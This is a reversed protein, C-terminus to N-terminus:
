AVEEAAPTGPAGDGAAAVPEDDDVPPPPAVGLAARLDEVIVYLCPIAGLTLVTAFALGFSLSVAMPIIFQAQFSQELILPALGAITTLSTLIIPRLRVEAARVVDDHLSKTRGRQRNIFDVLILSDNVVIGCLAVAGIMSMFSMEMGLVLHGVVIGVGAFPIAAMVILPQVYSRFVAALIVYILIVAILTAQWLSGLSKVTEHAVGRFRMDLDALSAEAAVADTVQSSSTTERDVSALLRIARKRDVRNYVGEGRSVEFRAVERLRVRDGAPTFVHLQELQGPTELLEKSYRVVVDIQGRDVRWTSAKLGQIAARVQESLAQVTLGVARGYPLLELQIELKGPQADTKIDHVGDLKSLYGRLREINAELEEGDGRLEIEIDPGTPNGTAADWRLSKVGPLGSSLERLVALIDDSSRERADPALLELFILGYHSGLDNTSAATVGAPQTMVGVLSFSSKAEPVNEQVRRELEAITEATRHLPTGVPLEVQCFLTDAEDTPSLHFPVIFAAVAACLVTVCVMALLSLYRHRLALRLVPEYFYRFLGKLLGDVKNQLRQGKRDPKRLSTALHCPLLILAEILSVALAVSVVVPVPRVIEGLKGDIMMLPLFAAITTSIAAVVPWSVQEAGKVAAEVPRMGAEVYRYINEGIVIADDVIMGLVVILAFLTMLNISIGFIGMVILTGLFSVPIGSSVWFSLRVSLFLTLSLFVLILGYFGNRTMLEVRENIYRSLDTHMVLRVGPPPEFSAVVDRVREAIVVADEDPGKYVIVRTAETGNFRGSVRPEKWSISLEALDGLLVQQGDEGSVIPLERLAEITESRGLSRVLVEGQDSRLVGAPIDQNGRAVAAAVDQPRLRYEELLRPHLWLTLEREPIGQLRTSSIRDDRLLVDNLDEAVERLTELGHPGTVSVSIVPLEPELYRSTVGERVVEDPLDDVKELEADVDRLVSQPDTGIELTLNVLAIGERASSSMTEVGQVGVLAEELPIVVAAEVEAPSAGPYVASVAIADPTTDPLLERPTTFAALLGGGVIAFLLLHVLVSNKVSFAPLSM